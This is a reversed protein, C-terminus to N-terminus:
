PLSYGNPVLVHVNLTTGEINLHPSTWPNTGGHGPDLRVSLGLDQAKSAIADATEGGGIAGEDLMMGSSVRARHDGRGPVIGGDLRGGALHDLGTQGHQTAVFQLPALTEVRDARHAAGHMTEDRKFVAASESNREVDVFAEVPEHRGQELAKCGRTRLSGLLVSDRYFKVSARTSELKKFQYLRAVNDAQPNAAAM